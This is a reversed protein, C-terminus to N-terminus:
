QPMNTHRKNMLDSAIFVQIFDLFALNLAFDTLAIRKAFDSFALCAAFHTLCGPKKFSAACFFQSCVASSKISKRAKYIIRWNNRFNHFYVPFRLQFHVCWILSNAALTLNGFVAPGRTPHTALIKSFPLFRKKKNPNKATSSFASNTLSGTIYLRNRSKNQQNM